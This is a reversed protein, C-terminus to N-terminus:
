LYYIDMFESYKESFDDKIIKYGFSSLIKNLSKIIM